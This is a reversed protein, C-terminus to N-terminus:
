AEPDPCAATGTEAHFVVKLKNRDIQALEFVPSLEIVKKPCSDACQGCYVCRGLDIEAEFKKEGVKHITIAGSPCDRVCIKCGICGESHVVPAGRFRDPMEFKVYPYKTTAPRKFLSALVSNIMRGPFRLPKKAM